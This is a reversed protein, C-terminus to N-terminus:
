SHMSQKFCHVLSQKLLITYATKETHPFICTDIQRQTTTPTTTAAGTTMIDADFEVLEGSRFLPTLGFNIIKRVVNKM